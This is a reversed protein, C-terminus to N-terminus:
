KVAISDSVKTLSQRKSGGLRMAVSIKKGKDVKTLTYESKTAGKIPKGNRLWQYTITSPKPSWGAGSAKLKKGVTAKGSVRPKSSWTFGQVAVSATAESQNFRWFNGPIFVARLAHAGPKVPKTLSAKGDTVPASGLKKTGDYFDFGGKISGSTLDAATATLLLRTSDKSLKATLTSTTDAGIDKGLDYSVNCPKGEVISLNVTSSDSGATACAALPTNVTGPLTVKGTVTMMSMDLGDEESSSSPPSMSVTVTRGVRTIGLGLSDSQMMEDFQPDNLSGSISCGYKHTASDSTDTCTMGTPLQNGSEPNNIEQLMQTWLPTTMESKPMSVAFESAFTGDEGVTVSTSVACGSLLLAAAALSTKKM